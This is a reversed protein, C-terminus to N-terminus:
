DENSEDSEQRDKPMMTILAAAAKIATAQTTYRPLMARLPILATCGECDVEWMGDADQEASPIHKHSTTM